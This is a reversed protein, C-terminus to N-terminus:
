TQSNPTIYPPMKSSPDGYECALLGHWDTAKFDALGAGASCRRLSVDVVLSLGRIFVAGWTFGDGFHPTTGQAGHMNPMNPVRDM